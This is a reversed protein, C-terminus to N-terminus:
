KIWIEFHKLKIKKYEVVYHIGDHDYDFIIHSSEEGIEEHLLNGIIEMVIHYPINDYIKIRIEEM